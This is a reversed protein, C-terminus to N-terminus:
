YTMYFSRRGKLHLAAFVFTKQDFIKFYTKLIKIEKEMPFGVIALLYEYYCKKTDNLKFNHELCILPWKKSLWFLHFLSGVCLHARLTTTFLTQLIMGCLFGWTGIKQYDENAFHGYKSMHWYPCCSSDVNLVM